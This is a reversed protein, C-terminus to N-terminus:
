SGRNDIKGSGQLRGICVHIRQRFIPELYDSKLGGQQIRLVVDKEVKGKVIVHSLHEPKLLHADIYFVASKDKIFEPFDDPYLLCSDDITTEKLTTINVILSAYDSPDPETIVIWLHSKIAKFIFATGLSLM